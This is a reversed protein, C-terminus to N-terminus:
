LISRVWLRSYRLDPKEASMSVNLQLRLSSCPRPLPFSLATGGVGLRAGRLPSVILRPSCLESKCPWCKAHLEAPVRLTPRAVLSDLHLSYHRRANMEGSPWRDEDLLVKILHLLAELVLGAQERQARISHEAM